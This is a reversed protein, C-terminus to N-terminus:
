RPSWVVMEEKFREFDNYLRADIGVSKAVEINKIEDDWYLVISPDQINLRKLVIKFFDKEDKTFGVEYSIFSGDVLERLGVENLLYEGRAQEQNTALYVKVGKRRVESILDLVRNDLSREASWWYELMEDLSMKINWRQMYETLEKRVDIKGVFAPKLVKELFKDMEEKPINFDEVLRDSFYRKRSFIIVGDVDLLVTKLM